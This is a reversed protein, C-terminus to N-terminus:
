LYRTETYPSASGNELLSWLIGRRRPPGASSSCAATLCLGASPLVCSPTGRSGFWEWGLVAARSRGQGRQEQLLTERSYSCGQTVRLLCLWWPMAVPGWVGRGAAKRGNQEPTLNWTCKFREAFIRIEKFATISCAASYKGSPIKKDM